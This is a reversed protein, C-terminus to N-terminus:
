NRSTYTHPLDKLRRRFSFRQSQGMEKQTIPEHKTRDVYHRYWFAWYLEFANNLKRTSHPDNTILTSTSHREERKIDFNNEGNPRAYVFDQLPENRRYDGIGASYGPVLIRAGISLTIPDHKGDELYGGCLTMEGKTSWKVEINPQVFAFLLNFILTRGIMSKLVSM